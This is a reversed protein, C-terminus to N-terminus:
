RAAPRKPAGKHKPARKQSTPRTYEILAQLVGFYAPKRGLPKNDFISVCSAREPGYARKCGYEDFLLGFRDRWFRGPANPENSADDFGWFIVENCNPMSFFKSLLAYYINKQELRHEPRMIEHHHGRKKRHQLYDDYYGVAMETLIIPVRGDHLQKIKNIQRLNQAFAEAQRSLGRKRMDQASIHAQIGVGFAPVLGSVTGVLQAILRRFKKARNVYPERYLSGLIETKTENLLLRVPWREGKATDLAHQFATQIFEPRAAKWGNRRALPENVIVAQREFAKGPRENIFFTTAGSIYTAINHDYNVVVSQDNGDYKLQEDQYLLANIMVPYPTVLPTNDFGANDHFPPQGSGRDYSAQANFEYRLSINNQNIQDSTLPASGPAAPANLGWAAGVNIGKARAVAGITDTSMVVVVPKKRPM